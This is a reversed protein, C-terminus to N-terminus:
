FDRVFDGFFIHAHLTCCPNSTLYDLKLLGYHECKPPLVVMPGDVVVGICGYVIQSSAVLQERHLCLHDSLAM